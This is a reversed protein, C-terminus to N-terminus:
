YKKKNKIIYNKNRWHKRRFPYVQKSAIESMVLFAKFLTLKKAAIASM